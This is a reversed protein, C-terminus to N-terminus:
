ELNLKEIKFCDNDFFTSPKINLGDLLMLITKLKIDKTRRQFISKITPFPVGSQQALKYQTLNSLNMFYLLRDVIADNLTKM